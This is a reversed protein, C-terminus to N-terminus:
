WLYIYIYTSGVDWEIVLAVVDWYRNIYEIEGRYISITYLPIGEKVVHEHHIKKLNQVQAFLYGAYFSDTVDIKRVEIEKGMRDEVYGEIIGQEENIFYILKAKNYAEALIKSVSCKM